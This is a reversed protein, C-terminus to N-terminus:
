GQSWASRYKFDVAASADASTATVSINNDGKALFIFGGTDVVKNSIDAGNKTVTLAGCDVVIIDGPNTSIPLYLSQATAANIIMANAWRNRLVIVPESEISGANNIVASGGVVQGGFTWPFTIPFHFGSGVIDPFQITQTVVTTSYHRPDECLIQAQVKRKNPGGEDGGSVHNYKIGLPKGFVVRAEAGSPKTYFPYDNDDPEFNAALRDLLPIIGPGNVVYAMMDIVITKPQLYKAYQYSGHAGDRDVTVVRTDAMSMGEINTVDFFDASAPGNLLVGGDATDKLQYQWDQLTPALSTDINVVSSDLVTPIPM